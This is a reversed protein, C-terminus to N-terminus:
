LVARSLDALVLATVAEVVVPVRLAFCTDHRGKGGVTPTPKVAVSFTITDGNTIGGAIGGTHPNNYGTFAAEEFGSGFAIGKIGPIAFVTHSICSEVSDFFPNGWGAPVGTVQCTIVGGLSDGTVVARELMKQVRDPLEQGGPLADQQGPRMIPFGGVRTLFARIKLRPYTAALIRKAVVGAAVLPLTLRGSFHGGGRPDQFGKYKITGTFDATGPRPPLNQRYDQSRADRNEFAICLPTGCTFGNYVGSLIQPKDSEKRPTTGRAGSRRRDIDESFDDEQLPIGAPVGDLLVGIRPGHSEGFVSVRFFSGFANM